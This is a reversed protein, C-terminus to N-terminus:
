FNGYQSTKCFIVVTMRVAVHEWLSLQGLPQSPIGSPRVSRRNQKPSTRWRFMCIKSRWRWPSELKLQLLAPSSPSRWSFCLCVLSRKHCWIQKTLDTFIDHKKLPNQDRDLSNFAPLLPLVRLCMQFWIWQKKRQHDSSEWRSLCVRWRELGVSPIMNARGPEQAPRDGEQQTCQEKHPGVHDPCRGVFGQNEELGEELAEWHGRWWREGPFCSLCPTTVWRVSPPQKYIVITIM